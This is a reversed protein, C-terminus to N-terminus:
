GPDSGVNSKSNENNGDYETCPIGTNVENCDNIMRQLDAIYKETKSAVSQLNSIARGVVVCQSRAENEGSDM